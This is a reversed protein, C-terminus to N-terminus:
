QVTPFEEPQGLSGVPRLHVVHQEELQRAGDGSVLPLGVHGLGLEHVCLGAMGQRQDQREATAVARHRVAAQRGAQGAGAGRARLHLHCDAPEGLQHKRQSVATRLSHLRRFPRFPIHRLTRRPNTQTLTPVPSGSLSTHSGEKGSNAGFHKLFLM